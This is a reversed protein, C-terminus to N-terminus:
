CRVSPLALFAHLVFQGDLSPHPNSQGGVFFSFRFRFDFVRFYSHDSPLALFAHLDFQDSPPRHNSQVDVFCSVFVFVFM